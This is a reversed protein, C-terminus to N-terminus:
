ANTIFYYASFVFVYAAAYYYLLAKPPMSM